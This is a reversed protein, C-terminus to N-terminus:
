FAFLSLVGFFRSFAHDEAMYGTAYIFIASGVGTVVLTMLLSLEDILIGFPVSLGPLAIWSISLEWPLEGHHSLAFLFLKLTCAFSTLLGAIALTASLKRRPIGALLILVAAALPALLITWGLLPAEPPLQSPHTLAVM